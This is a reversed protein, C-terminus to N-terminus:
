SAAGTNFGGGSSAFGGNMWTFDNSPAFAAVPDILGSGYMSSDLMTQQFPEMPDFPSHTSLGGNSGGYLSFDYEPKCVMPVNRLDQQAM